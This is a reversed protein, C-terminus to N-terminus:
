HLQLRTTEKIHTGRKTKTEAAEGVETRARQNGRRLLSLSRAVFEVLGQPYTSPPPEPTSAALSASLTFWFAPRSGLATRLVTSRQQQFM